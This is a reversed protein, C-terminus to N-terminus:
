SVESRRRQSRTRQLAITLRPGWIWGRPSGGDSREVDCRKSVSQIRSSAPGAGANTDTRKRCDPSDHLPYDFWSIFPKAQVLWRLPQDDHLVLRADCPEDPTAHQLGSWRTTIGIGNKTRVRRKDRQPPTGRHLIDARKADVSEDYQPDSNRMTRPAREAPALARSAPSAPEGSSCTM